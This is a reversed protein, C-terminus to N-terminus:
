LTVLFPPTELKGQFIIISNKAQSLQAKGKEKGKDKSTEKTHDKVQNKGV